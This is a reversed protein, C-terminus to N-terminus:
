MIKESITTRIFSASPRAPITRSFTLPTSARRWRTTQSGAWPGHFTRRITWKAAGTSVFLQPVKKANMYKQIATNGPTGLSNFILLVEDDEVLKRAQEVTKAPNYGDDYSIFNIKRGNIGGEENLKRFYAAETKGITAYASLPGSYPMINGVKIETDTAGPDYKKQAHAATALALGVVGALAVSKAHRLLRHMM